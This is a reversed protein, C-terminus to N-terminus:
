GLWHSSVAVLQSSCNIPAHNIAPFQHADAAPYCLWGPPLSENQIIM